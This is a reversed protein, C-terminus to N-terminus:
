FRVHAFGLFAVLQLGNKETIQVNAPHETERVNAFPGCGVYACSGKLFRRHGVGGRVM